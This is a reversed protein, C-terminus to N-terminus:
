TLAQLGKLAFGRLIRCCKCRNQGSTIHPLPLLLWWNGIPSQLQNELIGDLIPLQFNAFAVM